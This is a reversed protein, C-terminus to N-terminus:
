KSLLIATLGVVWLIVIDPVNSLSRTPAILRRGCVVKLWALEVEGGTPLWAPPRYLAWLHGSDVTTFLSMVQFPRQDKDVRMGWVHFKLAHAYTHVYTHICAHMWPHIYAHTYIYIYIYVCVHISNRCNKLQQNLLAKSYIITEYIDMLLPM